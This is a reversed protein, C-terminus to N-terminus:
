AEDEEEEDEEDEEARKKGKKEKEKEVARLEDKWATLRENMEKRAEGLATELAQLHALPSSSSLPFSLSDIPPTTTSSSLAHSSPVAIDYRIELLPATSM